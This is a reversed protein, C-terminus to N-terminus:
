TRKILSSSSEENFLIVSRGCQNRQWFRARKGSFSGRQFVAGGLPFENFRESAIDSNGTVSLRKQHWQPKVYVNLLDADASCLCQFTQDTDSTTRTKSYKLFLFLKCLKWPADRRDHDHRFEGTDAASGSDKL